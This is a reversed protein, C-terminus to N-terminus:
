QSQKKWYRVLGAISMWAPNAAEYRRLGNESVGSSKLQDKTYEMFIPIMEENSLGEEWKNKVWGSWDSLIEKLAQMHEHVQEQEGYHTLVIKKPNKSLILDISSIWNEINIDPPPCPPVVPGNLIKAGAVDGTFISDNWQWAIHHKAHGPTHLAIFTQDGITISEEHDTVKLNAEPIHKMKGWLVDMQDGYIMTASAVLKSPDHMHEAGVPHLYITAGQRAFAWAAGAHDFHIHTLLVHKIDSAKMNLKHLGDEMSPFTSYPGTEILIPGVTSEVVFAAIADHLGRFHLDLTHYMKTEKSALIILALWLKSVDDNQAQLFSLPSFRMRYPSEKTRKEESQGVVFPSLAIAM